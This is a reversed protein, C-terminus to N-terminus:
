QRLGAFSDELMLCLCHYIPLHFEQVRPTSTSPVCICVDALAKLRGGTEGTLALVSLGRAKAVQAARCVNASNGSTSLAILMDGPRGLALVLQAFTFEPEVDNGFATSLAPIGTLPIAPFAWQLRDALEAPLGERMVLSLPRLHEFGKLLEGAWHDADSASGGNGCLLLKGDRRFTTDLLDYAWLISPLCYELDPYRSILTDLHLSMAAKRTVSGPEAASQDPAAGRDIPHDHTIDRDIM